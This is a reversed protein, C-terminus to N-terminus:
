QLLTNMKNVLQLRNVESYFSLQSATPNAPQSQLAVPSLIPALGLRNSFHKLLAPLLEPSAAIKEATVADLTTIAVQLLDATLATADQTKLQQLQNVANDFEEIIRPINTIVARPNADIQAKLGVFRQIATVINALRPPVAPMPQLGMMRSDVQRKAPQFGRLQLTQEMSQLAEERIQQYQGLELQATTDISPTVAPVAPAAPANRSNVRGRPPQAWASDFALAAALACTFTAAAAGWGKQHDLM